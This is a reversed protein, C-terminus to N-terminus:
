SSAPPSSNALDAQLKKLEALRPALLQRMKLRTGKVVLMVLATAVALALWGGPRVTGHTLWLPELSLFLGAFTLGVYWGAHKLRWAQSQTRRISLALVESLSQELRPRHSHLAIRHAVAALGAAIMLGLASWRLPGRVGLRSTIVAVMAVELAAIAVQFLDCWATALRYRRADRHIRASLGLGSPDPHISYMGPARRGIVASLAIALALGCGLGILYDRVVRTPTHPGVTAEMVIAGGIVAVVLAQSVATLMLTRAFGRQNRRIRGLMKADNAAQPGTNQPFQMKWAAELEDFNM